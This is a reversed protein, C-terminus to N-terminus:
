TMANSHVYGKLCGRLYPEQSASGWIFVQVHKILTHRLLSHLLLLPAYHLACGPYSKRDLELRLKSWSVKRLTVWVTTKKWRMDPLPAKRSQILCPCTCLHWPIGWNRKVLYHKKPYVPVSIPQLNSCCCDSSTNVDLFLADIQNPQWLLLVYNLLHFCCLKSSLTWFSALTLALNWCSHNQSREKWTVCSQTGYCGWKGGRRRLVCRGQKKGAWLFASWFAYPAMRGAEDSM